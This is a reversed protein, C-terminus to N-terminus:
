RGTPIEEGIEIYHWETINDMKEEDSWVIGSSQAFFEGDPKYWLISSQHFGLVETYVIRVCVKRDKKSFARKYLMKEDEKAENCFGFDKVYISPEFDYTLIEGGANIAICSYIQGDETPITFPASFDILRINDDIVFIYKYIDSPSLEIECTFVDEKKEMPIYRKGMKESIIELFVREAELYTCEFRYRM